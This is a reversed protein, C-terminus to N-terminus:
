RAHVRRLAGVLHVGIDATLSGPLAVASDWNIRAEFPIDEELLLPVALEYLHGVADVDGAVIHKGSAATTTDSMSLAGGLASAFPFSKLPGVKSLYETGDYVLSLVGSNRLRQMANLRDVAAGAGMASADGSIAIDVMIGTILFEDGRKMKGEVDLNCTEYGSNKDDNFFVLERTGANAHAKVSHLKHGFVERGKRKLRYRNHFQEDNETIVLPVMRKSM